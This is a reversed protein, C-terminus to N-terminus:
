SLFNPFFLLNKMFALLLIFGRTKRSVNGHILDSLLSHIDAGPFQNKKGTSGANFFCLPAGVHVAAPSQRKWETQSVLKPCHRAMTLFQTEEQSMCLVHFNLTMRSECTYHCNSNNGMFNDWFSYDSIFVNKFPVFTFLLLAPVQYFCFLQFPQSTCSHFFFPLWLM